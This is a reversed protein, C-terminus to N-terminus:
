HGWRHWPCLWPPLRQARRQALGLELDWAGETLGCALENSRHGGNKLDSASDLPTRLSGWAVHDTFPGLIDVHPGLLLGPSHPEAHGLSEWLACFLVEGEGVLFDPLVVGGMVM